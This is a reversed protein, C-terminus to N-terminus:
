SIVIREECTERDTQIITVRVQIHKDQLIQKKDLSNIEVIIVETGNVQFVIHCKYLILVCSMYEIQNDNLDSHKYM